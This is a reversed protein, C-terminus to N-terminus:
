DRTSFLFIDNGATDAISRCIKRKATACWVEDDPADSKILEETESQNLGLAEFAMFLVTSSVDANVTNMLRMAFIRSEGDLFFHIEGAPETMDETAFTVAVANTNPFNKPNDLDARRVPTAFEVIIGVQAVKRYASSESMKGIFETASLDSVRVFNQNAEAIAGGFILLCITATMLFIKKM